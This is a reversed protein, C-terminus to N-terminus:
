LVAQIANCFDLLDTGALDSLTMSSLIQTIRRASKLEGKWWEESHATDALQRWPPTNTDIANIQPPVMDGFAARIASLTYYNELCYRSLQMPVLGINHCNTVFAKQANANSTDLDILAFTNRVQAFPTPDFYMMMSGALFVHSISSSSSASLWKRIIHDIVLFDTRGETILVADSTLNDVALVGIESLAYARKTNDDITIAGNNYRCFYIRDVLAPNLFVPSHTSLIFQRDQVSNLFSLLRRQLDPHLHNEPEEIMLLQYDGDLAYLIISLVELLGLGENQASIWPGNTRRFQLQITPQPRDTFLQIDFESGTIDLFSSHIQDFIVKEETDPLQNKLTFIRSLANAAESDLKMTPQAATEHPLRRKPSLILPTGGHVTLSVLANAIRKADDVLGFRKVSSAQKAQNVLELAKSQSTRFLVVGDLLSVVNKVWEKIEAPSPDAYSGIQHQIRSELEPCPRYTIGIDSSEVIRRLITSKGSSNRGTIINVKGLNM